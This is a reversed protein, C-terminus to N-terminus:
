QHQVSYPGPLTADAPKETAEQTSPESTRKSYIRFSVVLDLLVPVHKGEKIAPQFVAKRITDVAGEDLGFGIPRGAVIEEPKGDAGIVAHYLAIGTVSNKQAFENSPPEIASVLKAKQDVNSQRFVVPERPQYETKTAAAQFYLKWFDPMAAIMRDDIGPAFIRDLAELLAHEAHTPAVPQGNSSGHATASAAPSDDTGKTSDAGRPKTEEKKKKKKEPKEEQERDISIKVNKKKPTIKVKDFGKTPDDEPLTGLFHLAYRQGEVQLKHKSLHVKDVQIASLTYSGRPSQSMLKGQEDFGLTNDLYGGRLYLTKGVLLPKLQDENIKGAFAHASFSAPAPTILREVANTQAPQPAPQSAPAPDQAQVGVALIALLAACIAAKRNRSKLL